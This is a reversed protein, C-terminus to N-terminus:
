QKHVLDVFIDELSSQQTELDAFDIGAAGLDDLLATIGRMAGTQAAQTDYAYVLDRGNPALKLGYRELSAPIGALPKHLHITLQKRGMRRM